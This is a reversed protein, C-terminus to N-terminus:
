DIALLNGARPEPQYQSNKRRRVSSSASARKNAPKQKSWSKPIPPSCNAASTWWRTDDVQVIGLSKIAEAASLGASLMKRSSRPCPQHTTQRIHSRELTRGVGKSAAPIKFTSRNKTLTRLVDQQMWNSAMKGDGCADALEVYYDVLARGQNM